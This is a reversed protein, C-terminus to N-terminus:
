ETLADRSTDVLLDYGKEKSLIFEGSLYEGGLNSQLIKIKRGTQNEVELRFEKFRVFAESKYRMLYVYGYQSHDDTFTIFYSFGRRAETNLPGCVDLLHSSGDKMLYFCNKNILFEFGANDSLPIFIITKIMSPVFYCGKLELMVRDSIVLNILRVVEAAVAKGDGLRLVVEGKSLKRSRQLVPLDNGIHAGCGTDFVWSAYNTVMNVVVFVDQNPSLHLCDRKWHGKERWHTCIDNARSQQQSGMKRKGKCIGVPAVPASKADNAVIVTKAKAKGKKRKWRGVKKGKLKSTSAEGVLVSPAFKKITAEYQVLMNILENISKELGSTSSSHITPRLFHRTYRDPIAYVEKM